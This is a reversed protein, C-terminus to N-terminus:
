LGSCRTGLEKGSTVSRGEGFQCGAIVVYGEHVVLDLQLTSPDWTAVAKGRTMFLEFPGVWLHYETFRSGEVQVELTGQEIALEAGQRSLGLVRMRSGSRVSVQSRDSFLVETTQSDPAWIWSAGSMQGAPGETTRHAVVASSAQAVSGQSAVAPAAKQRGGVASATGRTVQRYSLPPVLIDFAVILLKASLALVVLWALVRVWRRLAITRSPTVGVALDGATVRMGRLVRDQEAAIEPGLKSLPPLLRPDDKEWELCDGIM